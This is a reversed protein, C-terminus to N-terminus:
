GNGNYIQRLPMGLARLRDIAGAGAFQAAGLGEVFYGRRVKGREEAAALVRYTEAFGGPIGEAVVSGRTVVGYRDLLM